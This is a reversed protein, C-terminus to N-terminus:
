YKSQTTPVIREGVTFTNDEKVDYSHKNQM